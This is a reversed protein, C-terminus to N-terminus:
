EVGHGWKPRPVWLDQTGAVRAIVNAREALALIKEAKESPVRTMLFRMIDEGNVPKQKASNYRAM